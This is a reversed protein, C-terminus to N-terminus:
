ISEINPGSFPRGEEGSRTSDLLERVLSDLEAVNTSKGKPLEIVQEIVALTWGWRRVFIGVEDGWTRLERPVTNGM